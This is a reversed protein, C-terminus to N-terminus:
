MLIYGLALILKLNKKGDKYLLYILFLIILKDKDLFDGNLNLLSNIPNDKSFLGNSFNQNSQKLPVDQLPTSQTIPPIDQTPPLDAPINKNPQPKIQQPPSYRNKNYGRYNGRHNYNRNYYNAM